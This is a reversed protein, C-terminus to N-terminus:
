TYMTFRQQKHNSFPKPEATKQEVSWFTSKSQPSAPKQQPSAPRQQTAAPKQQTAAPKQQPSAPRQQTSSTKPETAWFAPKNESKQEVSWFTSKNQPSVPSRKVPSAPALCKVYSAPLDFLAPVLYNEYNPNSNSPSVPKSSKLGVSSKQQSAPKVTASKASTSKQTASKPKSLVDMPQSSSKQTPSKQTPSRRVPSAPSLSNMYAAPLEFMSPMLFNEYNPHSNSPSSSKPSSSKQQVTNPRITATVKPASTAQTKQMKPKQTSPSKAEFFSEWVSEGSIPSSNSKTKSQTNKNTYNNMIKQNSSQKQIPSVPKKQQAAKGVMLPKQSARQIEQKMQIEIELIRTNMASCLKKEKQLEARLVQIQNFQAKNLSRLVDIETNGSKAPSKSSVVAGKQGNAKMMSNVLQNASVKAQISQTNSAPYQQTKMPMPM